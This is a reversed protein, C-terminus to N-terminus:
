RKIKGAVQVNGPTVKVVVIEGSSPYVGTLATINVQHTVLLVSADPELETLWNRLEKTQSQEREWRQYFSNLFPLDKAKDYGLLMATEACRCWQSTYVTLNEIGNARLFDGTGRAQQRGEDSLNRQTTCDDISFNEPDGSGPAIAHRMLAIHGGAKLAALGSETDAYSGAGNLCLAVGVVITWLRQM